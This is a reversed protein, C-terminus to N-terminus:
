LFRGFGPSVATIQAVLARLPSILHGTFQELHLATCTSNGSGYYFWHFQFKLIYSIYFFIIMNESIPTLSQMGWMSMKTINISLLHPPFGGDGFQSGEVRGWARLPASKFRSSPPPAFKVVGMNLNSLLTWCILFNHGMHNFIM